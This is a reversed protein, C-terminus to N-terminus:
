VDFPPVFQDRFTMLKAGVAVGFDNGVKEFIVPSSHPFAQATLERDSQPIRLSPFQMEASVAEPDRWEEPAPLTIPQQEGGLDLTQECGSHDRRPRITSPQIM